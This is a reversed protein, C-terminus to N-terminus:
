HPMKQAYLAAPTNRHQKSVGQVASDHNAGPPDPTSHSPLHEARARVAPNIPKSDSGCGDTTRRDGVRSTISAPRSHFSFTSNVESVVHVAEYNRLEWQCCCNLTLQKEAPYCPQNDSSRVVIICKTIRCLNILLKEINFTFWPRNPSRPLVRIYKTKWYM